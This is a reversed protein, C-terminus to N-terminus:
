TLFVSILSKCPYSHSHFLYVHVDCRRMRGGVCSKKGFRNVYCLPLIRNRHTASEIVGVCHSHDSAVSQVDTNACLLHATYFSAHENIIAKEMYCKNHLGERRSGLRRMQSSTSCGVSWLLPMAFLLPSNNHEAYQSNLSTKIRPKTKLGQFLNNFSDCDQIVLRKFQPM